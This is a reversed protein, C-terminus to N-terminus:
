SFLNLGTKLPIVSILVNPSPGCRLLVAVQTTWSLLLGDPCLLSQKDQTKNENAIKRKGKIANKEEASVNNGFNEKFEILLSHL